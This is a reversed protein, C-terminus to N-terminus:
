EPVVRVLVALHAEMLDQRGWVMQRVEGSTRSLSRHGCRSFFFFSFCDDQLAAVDRGAQRCYSFSLVLAGRRKISPSFMLLRLTRQNSGLEGRRLVGRLALWAM